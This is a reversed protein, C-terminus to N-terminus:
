AFIADYHAVEYPFLTLGPPIQEPLCGGFVALRFALTMYWRQECGESHYVRELLICKKTTSSFV